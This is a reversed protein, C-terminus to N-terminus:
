LFFPRAAVAAAAAELGPAPRPSGCWWGVRPVAVGGPRAPRLLLPAWRRRVRGPPAGTDEAGVRLGVGGEGGGLEGVTQGRRRRLLGAAPILGAENSGQVLHVELPGVGPDEVGTGCSVHRGRITYKQGTKGRRGTDRNAIAGDDGDSAM